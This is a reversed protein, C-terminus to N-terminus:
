LCWMRTRSWRDNPLNDLKCNSHIELYYILHTIGNVDTGKGFEDIILLSRRTALRLSRAIQQLDIVFASEIQLINAFTARRSHHIVISFGVKSVSEKTQIRTLIKDTLGITAHEAPVFSTCKTLILYLILHIIPSLPM